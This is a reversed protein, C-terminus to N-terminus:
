RATTFEQEIVMLDILVDRSASGSSASQINMFPTMNTSSINTTIPSGTVEVGDVFYAISTAGANVQITLRTWDAVAATVTNNTTTTSSAASNVTWQGSNVSHTYEFWAGDTPVGTGLKEIGCKIIYPSSASSLALPKIVWHLTLTGGGFVHAGTTNLSCMRLWRSTAATGISMRWIGPHGAVSYVPDNRGAMGNNEWVYKADYTQLGSTAGAGHLFDEWESVYELPQPSFAGGSLSVYGDTDVTFKTDDFSALGADLKDGPAGTVASAVQVDVELLNSGATGQVFVPKANTANAVTVGQVDIDGSGDPGVAGGADGTFTQTPPLSGGSLTVYGNADVNFIADDFSALGADNSNAPTGTRDSALQVEINYANLARSHSEVPVSHAAVANGSVTIVGVASPVVNAVGPLTASSVTITDVLPGSGQILSAYGNADVNFVTDDLSIIGADNSNAPAGTIASGVQIQATLQNVTGDNIYLPKANTANAVTSGIIDINGAGDPSVATSGDGTLTQIDDGPSASSISEWQPVGASYDKLYWLDGVSGTTPDDGVLWFQGLPFRSDNSTPERSVKIIPILDTGPGVYRTPIEYPVGVKNRAM